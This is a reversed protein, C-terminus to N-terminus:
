LCYEISNFMMKEILLNKTPSTTNQWSYTKDNFITLIVVQVKKNRFVVGSFGIINTIEDYNPECFKWIFIYRLTQPNREVDTIIMKIFQTDAIDSDNKVRFQLETLKGCFECVQIFYNIMKLPANFGIWKVVTQILWIKYFRFKIYFLVLYTLIYNM